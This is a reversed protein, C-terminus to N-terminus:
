KLMADIDSRLEEIPVAGGLFNSEGTKLNLIFSGPTGQVGAKVGENEQDQVKNKYKGSNLCSEFAAQDVGIRAAISPLDSATEDESYIIDAFEWFKDNGSLEAVCESAEAKKRAEPHLEDLPFQRFVWMVKDGYESLITKETEHYVGCYPCDFDSYEILAVQANTSGRIHDDSIPGKLKAKQEPASGTKQTEEGGTKVDKTGLTDFKKSKCYLTGSYFAAILLILATALLTSNLEITNKKPQDNM